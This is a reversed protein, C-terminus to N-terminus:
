YNKLNIFIYIYGTIIYMFFNEQIYKINKILM